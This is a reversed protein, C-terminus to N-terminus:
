LCFSLWSALQPICVTTVCSNCLLQKLKLCNFHPSDCIVQRPIRNLDLIRKNKALWYFHILLVNYSVSCYTYLETLLFFYSYKECKYTYYLTLTRHTYLMRYIVSLTQNAATAKNVDYAFNYRQAKIKM